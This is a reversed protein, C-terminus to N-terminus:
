GRDTDTTHSGLLDSPLASSSKDIGVSFRTLMDHAAPLLPALVAPRDTNEAPIAAAVIHGASEPEISPVFDDPLRESLRQLAHQLRPAPM